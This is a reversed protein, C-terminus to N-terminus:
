SSNEENPWFRLLSFKFKEKSRKSFNPQRRPFRTTGFFYLKWVKGFVDIAEEFEDFFEEDRFGWEVPFRAMIDPQEFLNIFNSWAKKRM